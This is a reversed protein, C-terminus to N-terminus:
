ILAVLEAAWQYLRERIMKIREQNPPQMITDATQDGVFLGRNVEIMISTPPSVSTKEAFREAAEPRLHHAIVFSGGFPSNLLVTPIQKDKEPELLTLDAFLKEAIAAAARALSPPCCTWGREPKIEGNEDGMNAICILPRANGADRYATPGHQAMNHCDIFLKVEGAHHTLAKDAEHHYPWWYRDLLQQREEESLPEHYINRGYSTQTKVPGDPKELWELPRNVDILARAIPMSFQHLIGSDYGNPAHPSLDPHQFDFHDDVWLDCDNYLDIQDIALKSEVEEPTSLGGHPRSLIIPLPKM